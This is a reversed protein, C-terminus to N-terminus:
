HEAESRGLLRPEFGNRELIKQGADSLIFLAFAVANPNKPPLWTMGYDAGVALDSPLNVVTGNPLSKKFGSAVSCYAIFVDARRERLHWAFLDMGPPPASNNAGGMLQLAKAELVARSGPRVADAKAFMAWTYDGAPDAKPTSTGVKIRPDLMRSLLTKPSITLGPRALACLRNRAFRIVPGAKGAQSLALPNAMDASAFLDVPEGNEIRQRLLGSPGYTSDVRIGSANAFDAGIEDIAARLSGAALVRVVARDEAHLAGVAALVAVVVTFFLKPSKPCGIRM